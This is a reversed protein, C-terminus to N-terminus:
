RKAGKRTNRPVGVTSRSPASPPKASRGPAGLYDSLKSSVGPGAKFPNATDSSRKAM